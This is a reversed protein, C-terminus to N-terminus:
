QGTDNDLAEAALLLQDVGSVFEGASRRRRIEEHQIPYRVMAEERSMPVFDHDSDVRDSAITAEERGVEIIEEVRDIAITAEERDVEIIEEVRDRAIRQEEELEM